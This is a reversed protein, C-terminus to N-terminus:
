REDISIDRAEDDDRVSGPAGSGVQTMVEGTPRYIAAWEVLPDALAANLADRATDAQDFEVAARASDALMAAVARARQTLASRESDAAREPVLWADLGTIAVVVVFLLGAIKWRVSGFRFM